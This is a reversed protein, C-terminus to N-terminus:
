QSPPDPSGSATAEPRELWIERWLLYNKRPCWRRLVGDCIAGELLVTDNIERMEGTQELIIKSVKKQVKLTRDCFVSMEPSFELGRNKGDRDLTAKIEEKSRTRVREDPRLNLSAQPTKVNTGTLGAWRHGSLLSRIKEVGLQRVGKTLDRLGMQGSRIDDVYQMPNWWHLPATARYLETSQCMYRAEEKTRYRPRDKPSPGPSPPPEYEDDVKRLWEVKWFLMCGRQCGDHGGGACRLDELFLTNNLKRLGYGEVCTKHAWGSVRFEKGCYRAMEPMFPMGELSQRTDLMALIEAELKVEVLDGIHFDRLSLHRRGTGGARAIGPLPSPTGRGSGWNRRLYAIGTQILTGFRGALFKLLAFPPNGHTLKYRRGENYESRLRRRIKKVLEFGLFIVFRVRLGKGSSTTRVMWNRSPRAGFDRYKYIYEGRLLDYLTRHDAIAEEIGRMKILFGPSFRMIDDPGAAQSHFAYVTNGYTVNLSMAVRSGNVTLFSLNLWGRRAFSDTLTIWFERVHDDKFELPYGLSKWRADHIEFFSDMAAHLTEGPRTFQEIKVDYAATLGNWKRRYEHRRRSDMANLFEEFSAPLHVHAAISGQYLYERLSNKRLKARLLELICSEENLSEIDLLDWDKRHAALYRCFSEIVTEEYGRKAIINQYDSFPCSLFMLQKVDRVLPLRIKRVYFPAIGILTGGEYFTFCLLDHGAGYYRWWTMLWESSEFISSDAETLLTDWEGKLADLQAITTLLQIDCTM